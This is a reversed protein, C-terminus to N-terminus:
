QTQMEKLNKTNASNGVTCNFPPWRVIILRSKARM